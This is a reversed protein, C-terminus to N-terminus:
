TRKASFIPPIQMVDGVLERTAAVVDDRGVSVPVPPALPEGQLDDTTTAFGLRITAAYYKEGASLFRVLRTAKGVCIPLVGSAFPDLTGTHGVRREGLTRRVRDVVDHSTPGAPKDVVLLGHLNSAAKKKMM